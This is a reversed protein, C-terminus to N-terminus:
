GTSRGDKPSMSERSARVGSESSNKAIDNRHHLNAVLERRASIAHARLRAPGAGCHPGHPRAGRGAGRGCAAAARRREGDCRLVEYEVRDRSIRTRRSIFAKVTGDNAYCRVKGTHLSNDIPLILLTPFLVRGHPVGTNAPKPDLSRGQHKM